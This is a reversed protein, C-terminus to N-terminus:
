NKKETVNSNGEVRVKTQCMIEEDQSCDNKESPTLVYMQQKTLRLCLLLSPM